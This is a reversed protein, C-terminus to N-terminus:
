TTCIIWILSEDMIKIGRKRGTLCGYEALEGGEGISPDSRDM